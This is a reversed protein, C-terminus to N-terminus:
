VFGFIGIIEDRGAMADGTLRLGVGRLKIPIILRSEAFPDKRVGGCNGPSDATCANEGGLATAGAVVVAKELQAAGNGTAHGIGTPVGVGGGGTLNQCSDVMRLTIVLANADTDGLALVGVKARHSPSSPDSFHTTGTGREEIGPLLENPLEVSTFRIAGVEVRRLM